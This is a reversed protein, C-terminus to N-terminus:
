HHELRNSDISQFKKILQQKFFGITYNITLTYETYPYTDMNKEAAASIRDTGVLIAASISSRLNFPISYYDLVAQVTDGISFSQEAIAFCIGSVYTNFNRHVKTQTTYTVSVIDPDWLTGYNGGRDYQSPIYLQLEEGTIAKYDTLADLYPTYIAPDSVYWGAVKVKFEVPYTTSFPTKGETDVLLVPNSRCYAFANHGLLQGPKGIVSDGNM